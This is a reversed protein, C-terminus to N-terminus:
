RYDYHVNAYPGGSCQEFTSCNRSPHCDSVASLQSIPQEMCVDLVVGCPTASTKIQATYCHVFAKSVSAWHTHGIHYLVQVTPVLFVSGSRGTVTPPSEASTTNLCRLTMRRFIAPRVCGLSAIYMILLKDTKVSYIVNKRKRKGKM